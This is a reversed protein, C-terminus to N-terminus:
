LVSRRDEIQVKKKWDTAILCHRVISLEGLTTVQSGKIKLPPIVAVVEDTLTESHCFNTYM